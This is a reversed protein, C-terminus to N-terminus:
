RNGSRAVRIGPLISSYDAINWGPINDGVFCPMRAFVM